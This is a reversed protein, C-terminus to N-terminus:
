LSRLHALMKARTKQDPLRGHCAGMNERMHEVKSTAPIACTVAPHSVIWKLVFQPWNEVDAEVKAWEPLPHRQLKSLLKGGQFPRNALIAVGKEKALPLLVDEVERDLPNYTLQVVDLQHKRMISALDSHRRGHSTTIGIHGLKRAERLARLKPLHEDWALLNHVQMLEFRPIDWHKRTEEFQELTDDGDSTWIKDAAFLSEPRGIKKLTYGLVEQSSGYMPSSDIVRGGGAFFARLVKARMDRARKDGGVNFTIWTGMGIVPIPVKTSPIPKTLFHLPGDARATMTTFPLPASTAALAMASAKIFTRRDLPSPSDSM